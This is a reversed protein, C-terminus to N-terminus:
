KHAAEYAAQRAEKAKRLAAVKEKLPLNSAATKAKEYKADAAKLAKAANPNNTVWGADRRASLADMRAGLAGACDLAADLKSEFDMDKREKQAYAIAVAQKQPKGAKRETAVNSSFAAKSSGAELPM